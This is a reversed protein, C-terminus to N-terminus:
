RCVGSRLQKGARDASSESSRRTLSFIFQDYTVGLGALKKVLADVGAAAADKPNSYNRELALLEAYIKKMQEVAARQPVRRSSHYGSLKGFQDWTPTVHAFVWYHDGNKARNVVYAFIERGNSITEWLLKFVSRPMEPHRIINHPKGLIEEERYGAVRLFVSNAYTIVGRLDTKSVIIEDVDFSQEVGSLYLAHREM